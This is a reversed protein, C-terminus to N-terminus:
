PGTHASATGKAAASGHAQTNRMRTQYQVETEGMKVPSPHRECEAPQPCMSFEEGLTAGTNTATAGYQNNLNGVQAPNPAFPDISSTEAHVLRQEAFISLIIFLIKLLHGM